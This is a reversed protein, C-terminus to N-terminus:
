SCYCCKSPPISDGRIDNVGYGAQEVARLLDDISALQRDYTVTASGSALSVEVQNVGRIALLSRSVFKVCGGCAIGTVSFRETQM